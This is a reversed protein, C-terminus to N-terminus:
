CVRAELVEKALALERGMDECEAVILDLKEKLEAANAGLVQLGSPFGETLL